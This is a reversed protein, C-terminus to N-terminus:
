GHHLGGCEHRGPPHRLHRIMYRDHRAYALLEAYAVGRQNGVHFTESRCQGSADPLNCYKGAGAFCKGASVGVTGDGLSQCTKICYTHCRLCITHTHAAINGANQITRVFALYLRAPHRVNRCFQQIHAAIFNRQSVSNAHARRSSSSIQDFHYRFFRRQLIEGSM